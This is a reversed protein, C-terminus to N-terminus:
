HIEPRLRQMLGQLAGQSLGDLEPSRRDIENALDALLWDMEDLMSRLEALVEPDDQMMALMSTMDDPNFGAQLVLSRVSAMREFLFALPSGPSDAAPRQELMARLDFWARLLDSLHNLRGSPDAIPGPEAPQSAQAQLLDRLAALVDSDFRPKNIRYLMELRPMDLRRLVTETVDAAALIRALRDIKAGHLAHPYGSGDLREHHQLVAKSAASPFGPLDKLLVYGTVPHVHVFRREEVTVHHSLDLIRPDTHMEGFDHCLAALLVAPLDAPPVGMRQACAFAIIATRLTHEFMEAHKDSMVTLRLEVTSHLRLNATCHKLQRPDGARSLLQRYAADRELIRDFEIALTAADVAKDSSLVQDLPASLKYRTLKEFQKSDIRAGKALLKTGNSAYIDESAIVDRTDGMETVSRVFHPSEGPVESLQM